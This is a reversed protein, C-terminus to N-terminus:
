RGRGDMSIRIGADKLRRSPSAPSRRGKIRRLHRAQRPPMTEELAAVWFDADMTDSLRWALVKRGFWDMIAFPYLLGRRM